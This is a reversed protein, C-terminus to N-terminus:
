MIFSILLSAQSINRFYRFALTLFVRYETILRIKSHTIALQNFPLDLLVELSDIVSLWNQNSIKYKEGSKVTDDSILLHHGM